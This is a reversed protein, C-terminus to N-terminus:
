KILKPYGNIYEVANGSCEKAVIRQAYMVIVPSLPSLRRLSKNKFTLSKRSRISAIKGLFLGIWRMSLLDGIWARTIGPLRTQVSNQSRRNIAEFCRIQKNGILDGVTAAPASRTRIMMWACLETSWTLHSVCNNTLLRREIPSTRTECLRRHRDTLFNESKLALNYFATYLKNTLPMWKSRANTVLISGEGKSSKWQIATRFLLACFHFSTYLIGKLRICYLSEGSWIRVSTREHEWRRCGQSLRLGVASHCRMSQLCRRGPFRNLM